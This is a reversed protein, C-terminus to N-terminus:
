ILTSKKGILLHLCKEQNFKLLWVDSLKKALIDVHSQPIKQDKITKEIYRLIIRM